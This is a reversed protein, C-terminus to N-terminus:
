GLWRGVGRHSRCAVSRTQSFSYTGDRCIAKAGAPPGNKEPTTATTTSGLCALRALSSTQTHCSSPSGLEVVTAPEAAPPTCATTAGVIMAAALLATFILGHRPGDNVTRMVYGM